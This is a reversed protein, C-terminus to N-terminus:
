YLEFGLDFDMEVMLSYNIHQVIRCIALEAALYENVYPEARLPAFEQELRDVETFLDVDKRKQLEFNRRRFENVAREKGPDQHILEQLRRYEKYEESERVTSVLNKLIEELQGDM